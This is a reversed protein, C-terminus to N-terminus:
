ESGRRRLQALRDFFDGLSQGPTKPLPPQESQFQRYQEPSGFGRTMLDENRARETDLMEQSRERVNGMNELTGKAVRGAGSRLEALKQLFADM